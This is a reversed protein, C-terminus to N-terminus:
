IDAVLKFAANEFVHYTAIDTLQLPAFIITMHM